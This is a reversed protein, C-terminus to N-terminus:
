YKIETGNLIFLWIGCNEKDVSYFKGNMEYPIPILCDANDDEIIDHATLLDGIIQFVNHLDFQRKSDRVPHYGLILPSYNKFTIGKFVEKFLNPRTKYEKVVKKSTSYHQVGLKQLYKSVAPSNFSGKGPAMVRSNKSSPVNFPIFFRQRQESAKAM